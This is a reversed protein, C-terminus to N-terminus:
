DITKREVPWGIEELAAAWGQITRIARQHPAALEPHAARLRPNKVLDLSYSLKGIAMKLAEALEKAAGKAADHDPATVRITTVVPFRESRPELYSTEIRTDRVSVSERDSNHPHTFYAEAM